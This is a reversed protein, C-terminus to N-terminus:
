EKWNTHTNSIQVFDSKRSQLLYTIGENYKFIVYVVNNLNSLLTVKERM